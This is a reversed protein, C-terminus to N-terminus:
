WRADPPGPGKLSDVWDFCGDQTHGPSTVTAPKNLFRTDAPAACVMNCDRNSSSDVKVEPPQADETDAAPDERKVM